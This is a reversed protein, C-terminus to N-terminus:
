TLLTPRKTKIIGLFLIQLVIFLAFLIWFAIKTASSGLSTFSSLVVLFTIGLSPLIVAILMYFMALPNLQSGYKQIQIIQEDSISSIIEKLVLQLDSGTRIGNALQWIARRFFPSPNRSALEEISDSEPKGANIQKVASRFEKSIEGYDENSITAFINFIPVGANLQILISNLANLLNREIGRIRRSALLKPYYVQQLFILLSVIVPAIISYILAIELKIFVLLNLVLLLLLVFFFNIFSAALYHKSEIEQNSQILYVKLFPFLSDLIEGIGLFPISLKDIIKWPLILFPIRM